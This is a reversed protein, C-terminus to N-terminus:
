LLQSSVEDICLDKEHKGLRPVKLFTSREIPSEPVGQWEWKIRSYVEKGTYWNPATVEIRPIEVWLDKLEHFHNSQKM